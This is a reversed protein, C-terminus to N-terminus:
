LPKKREETKIKILAEPEARVIATTSKLFEREQQAGEQM